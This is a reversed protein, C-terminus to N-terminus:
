EHFLAKIDSSESLSNSWAAPLAMKSVFISDIAGGMNKIADRLEVATVVASLMFSHFSLQLCNGKTRLYDYIEKSVEIAGDSYEVIIIYKEMFSDKM